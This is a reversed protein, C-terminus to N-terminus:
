PRWVATMEDRCHRPPTVETNSRVTVTLETGCTSCRYHEITETVDGPDPEDPLTALMRIIRTTVWWIALGIAIAVLLRPM